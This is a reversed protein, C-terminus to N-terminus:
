LLLQVQAISEPTSRHRIAQWGCARAALVNAELDDLFVIQEPEVDLARQMLRYIRPDPKKCGVEDSYILVDTSGAFAWCSEAQRAGPSSNSLIGTRLGPRLRRFWDYLPEDLTGRYYSWYDAMLEAADSESLGFTVRWHQQIQAETQEGIAADGPMAERAAMIAGTTLGLREEWPGPWRSEDIQELVGGIDAVVARIV